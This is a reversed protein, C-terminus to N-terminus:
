TDLSPETDSVAIIQSIDTTWLKEGEYLFRPTWQLSKIYVFDGKSLGNVEEGVCVVRGWRPKEMQTEKGEMIIISGKSTQKFQGNETTEELFQFVINEKLIRLASFKEAENSMEAVKSM